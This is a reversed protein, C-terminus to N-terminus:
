TGRTDGYALIHLRTSTNLGHALTPGILAQHRATLTAVDVGEPMIWVTNRPWGFEDALDATATVDDPTRCVVKLCARGDAALRAYGALVQPHITRDAPMGAHALKPSVVFLGALGVLVPTPLITGNTEVHVASGRAALEGLLPGLGYGPRQQLLPEGGTVIVLGPTGPETLEVLVDGATRRVLEARLDYEAANWTYGADCFTCTLNCGGLRLFTAPRGTAPGEGQVSHFVESVVLPLALSAPATLTPLQGHQDPDRV